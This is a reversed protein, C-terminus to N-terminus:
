DTKSASAEDIEAEHALSEWHSITEVDPQQSAHNKDQSSLLLLIATGVTKEKVFDATILGRVCREFEDWACRYIMVKWLAKKMIEQKPMNRIIDLLQMSVLADRNDSIHRFVNIMQKELQTVLFDAQTLHHPTIIREDSIAAALVMATKHIHTQKRALYGGHTEKDMHSNSNPNWHKAYWKEGWAFAEASLHYEGSINSISKLDNILYRKLTAFEAKFAKMRQSPYAILERKADAYVFVTRSTFGGKIAYEPFNEELWGPTTCGLFNLWPNKIESLGEGKTRRKWPVNRGDWLDCLVDIMERNTPDLFTGLESAAITIAAMPGVDKVSEQAEIFSETLAQWTVSDPGFHISELERLLSMGVGLTTSKSVIGPPAVLIIFFNPKWKFYGMDIWVKGRLAGAITGIATWMHFLDPAEMHKTYEVYGQIWNPINRNM